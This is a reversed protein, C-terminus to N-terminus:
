IESPWLDRVPKNDKKVLEIHLMVKEFQELLVNDNDHQVWYYNYQPIWISDLRATGYTAALTYHTADGDGWINAM